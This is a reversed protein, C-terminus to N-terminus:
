LGLRRAQGLSPWSFHGKSPFGPSPMPTYWNVLSCNFCRDSAWPFKLVADTWGCRSLPGGRKTGGLTKSCKSISSWRPSLPSYVLKDSNGCGRNTGMHYPGIAELKQAETDGEPFHQPPFAERFPSGLSFPVSWHGAGM